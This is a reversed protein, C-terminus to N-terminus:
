PRAADGSKQLFMRWGGGPEEHDDLYTHGERACFARMDLRVLPDDAVVDLRGSPPLTKFRDRTRLVPVPCYLGRADLFEVPADPSGSMM